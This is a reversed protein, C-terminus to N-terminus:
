LRDQPANRRMSRIDQRMTLVSYREDNLMIYPVQDGKSVGLKIFAYGGEGRFSLHPEQLDDVTELGLTMRRKGDQDVINIEQVNLVTESSNTAQAHVRQMTMTFVAGLISSGLCMVFLVLHTRM